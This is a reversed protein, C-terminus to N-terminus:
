RTATSVLGANGGRGTLARFAFAQEDPAWRPDSVGVLSVLLRRAGSTLDILWIRQAMRRASASSYGRNDKSLDMERYAGPEGTRTQVAGTRDTWALQFQGAHLILIAVHGGGAAVNSAGINTIASPAGQIRLRQVEGTLQGSAPDLRQGVVDRDRVYYLM